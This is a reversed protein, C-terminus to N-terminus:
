GLAFTATETQVPAAADLPPITVEQVVDRAATVDESNQRGEPVQVRRSLCGTGTLVLVVIAAAAAWLSAPAAARTANTM